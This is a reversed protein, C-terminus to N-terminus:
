SGRVGHLIEDLIYMAGQVGYVPRPIVDDLGMSSYGIPVGIRCGGNLSMTYATIGECFVADQSEKPARGFSGTYGVSDLFSILAGVEDKDAGPDVSVAVPAMALYNYLWETLPRIVSATGAASFSMGKIRLSNYKNGVLKEYVRDKARRVTGLAVSPDRGTAEAISQIWKETADFGVPAGADSRVVKVGYSEYLESLGACAEPCVVISYEANVSDLLESVSAGAGPICKVKLGMSEVLGRFEDAAARWDKDMITLGIINVTDKETRAKEPGLEEVVSRLTHGYCVAFPMSVLSEDMCLVRCRLVLDRSVKEHDDGILAAGPSNIIVILEPDKSSVIPLGESIKYTVGNIYDYEDLYTAPVRPYGYFYPVDYGVNDEPDDRPFVATSYVMQRVRCGGPGNLFAIADTISEVAMVAGNFGDPLTRM